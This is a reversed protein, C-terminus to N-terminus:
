RQEFVSIKSFFHFNNRFFNVVFAPQSIQDDRSLAVAIERVLLYGVNEGFGHTSRVINHPGDIKQRTQINLYAILRRMRVTKNQRRFINDIFFINGFFRFFHELAIKATCSIRNTHIHALHTLNIQEGAGLFNFKGFLDLFTEVFGLLFERVTWEHDFKQESLKFPDFVLSQTKGLQARTQHEIVLVYIGLADFDLLVVLFVQALVESSNSFLKAPHPPAIAPHPRPNALLM